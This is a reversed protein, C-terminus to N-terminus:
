LFACARLANIKHSHTLYDKNKLSIPGPSLPESVRTNKATNELSRLHQNKIPVSMPVSFKIL